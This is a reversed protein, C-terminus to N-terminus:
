YLFCECLVKIYNETPNLPMISSFMLVTCAGFVAKLLITEYRASHIQNPFLKSVFFDIYRNPLTVCKSIFGAKKVYHKGAEDKDSSYFAENDWREEPIDNVHNEGNVLVRWFDDINDAGPFRCGIGVVAIEDDM